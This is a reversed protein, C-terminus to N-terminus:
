YRPEKPGPRQFCVGDVEFAPPACVDVTSRIRADPEIPEVLATGNCAGLLVAGTLLLSKRM